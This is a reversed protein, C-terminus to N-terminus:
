DGQIEIKKSTELLRKFLKAYRRATKRDKYHMSPRRNDSKGFEFWVYWLVKMDGQGIRIIMKIRREGKSNEGMIGQAKAPISKSELGISQGYHYVM